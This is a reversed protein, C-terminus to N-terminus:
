ESDGEENDDIAFDYAYIHKPVNRHRSFFDGVDELLDEREAALRADIDKSMLLWFEDETVQTRPEEGIKAGPGYVYYFKM